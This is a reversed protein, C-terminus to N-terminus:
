WLHIKRVCVIKWTNHGCSGGDRTEVKIVDSRKCDETARSISQTAEACGIKESEPACDDGNGARCVLHITPPNDTIFERWAWLTSVILILGFAWVAFAYGVVPLLRTFRRQGPKPKKSIPKKHTPIANVPQNKEAKEAAKLQQDRVYVFVGWASTWLVSLGGGISTIVRLNDPNTLWAWM